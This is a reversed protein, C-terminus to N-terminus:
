CYSRVDLWFRGETLKFVNGNTRDTDSWTFTSGAGAQLSGKLEPLGCHPTRLVKRRWALCAWCTSYSLKEMNSDLEGKETILPFISEKAQRKQRIYSFIAKNKVDRVKTKRIANSCMWVAGRCEKWAM